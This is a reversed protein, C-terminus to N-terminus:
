KIFRRLLELIISIIIPWPIADSGKMAGAELLVQGMEEDSHPITEGVILPGDGLGLKLGYGLVNWAHSALEPVSLMQRKLLHNAIATVCDAPFDSPYAVHGAM